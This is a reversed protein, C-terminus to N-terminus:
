VAGIRKTEREEGPDGGSLVDVELEILYFGVPRIIACIDM